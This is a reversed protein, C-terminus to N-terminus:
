PLFELKRALGEPSVGVRVRRKRKQPGCSIKVDEGGVLLARSSDVPILKVGAATAVHFVQKAGACDVELLQGTIVSNDGPALASSKGALEEMAAAEAEHGSQRAAKIYMTSFRAMESHAVGRIKEVAAFASEYDHGYMHWATLQMGAEFHEPGAALARDIMKKALDREGPWLSAGAALLDPNKSGRAFAERVAIAAAGTNQEYMRIATMAEWPEVAKPFERTLREAHRLADANDKGSLHLDVMTLGNDLATAPTTEPKDRWEEWKFNFDVVNVTKGRIYGQVHQELQQPTLGYSQRLAQEPAIGTELANVFRTWKPRLDEELLLMHAVAWSMSYFLGIHEEGGYTEAKLVQRIDMWDRRLRLLHRPIPTGVRMKKGVPELTSYVEAIGENMWLPIRMNAQHVLLHVYEHTITTKDENRQAPGIVILDRHPLGIYYAATTKRDVFAAFSKASNLVVVRPKRGSDRPSITQFFFSRVREFHELIDQARGKSGDTYLEFHPSEMRTFQIQAPLAAAAALALALGRM